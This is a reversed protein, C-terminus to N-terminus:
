LGNSVRIDKFFKGLENSTSFIVLFLIVVVM